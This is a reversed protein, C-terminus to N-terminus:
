ANKVLEKKKTIIYVFKININCLLAATETIVSIVGSTIMLM